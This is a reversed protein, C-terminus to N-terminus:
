NGGVYKGITDNAIKNSDANIKGIREAMMIDASKEQGDKGGAGEPKPTDKLVDSKVRQEVAVKFKASNEFVKEMDGKFLANATEEALKEDYGQAIYKAKYESVTSKELLENYKQELEAHARAAEAKAVEDETMKGKLNRKAEALESSVKDFTAKSVLASMDVTEPIDLNLLAALKEEATMEEFGGIKTTDIKPM